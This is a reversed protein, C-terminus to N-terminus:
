ELFAGHVSLEIDVNKNKKQLWGLGWVNWHWITGSHTKQVTTFVDLILECSALFMWDIFLVTM